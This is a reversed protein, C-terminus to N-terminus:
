AQVIVGSQGTKLVGKVMNNTCIINTPTLTGNTFCPTTVGEFNAGSGWDANFENNYINILRATGQVGIACMCNGAACTACNDFTNNYIQYNTGSYTDSGSENKHVDFHTGYHIFGNGVVHNYRATYREGVFGAGTISHRNYDFLNGEVLMDGGEVNFGYGENKNQCHHAYNHHFWAGASLPSQTPSGYNYVCAWAWGYLDMNDVQFGIHGDRNMIGVRYVSEDGDADEAFCEGELTFGAFRVNDGNIIFVPKPYHYTGSGDDESKTYVRGWAGASWATTPTTGADNGRRSCITTYSPVVIQSNGMNINANPHLYIIKPTYDSAARLATIAAIATNLDGLTTVTYDGTTFIEAYGYGGGIPSGNYSNSGIGFASQASATAGGGGGSGTGDEGSTAAHDLFGGQGGGGRGGSGSLSTGSGAGGASM